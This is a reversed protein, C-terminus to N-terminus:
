LHVPLPERSQELAYSKGCVGAETLGKSYLTYTRPKKGEM